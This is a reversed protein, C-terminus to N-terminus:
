ISKAVLATISAENTDGASRGVEQRGKFVVLTSQSQVRLSRLVDKQSDFDVSLFVLDRFRPEATLKQLIPQQARCTPCWPATVEVLIPKGAAQAADFAAQTFRQAAAGAPHMAAFATAGAALMLSRRNIVTDELNPATM